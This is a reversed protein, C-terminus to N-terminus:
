NVSVNKRSTQKHWFFCNYEQQRNQMHIISCLTNRTIIKRLFIFYCSGDTTCDMAGYASEIQTFILNLETHQQLDQMITQVITLLNEKENLCQLMGALTDGLRYSHIKSPSPSSELHLVKCKDESFKMKTTEVCNELM